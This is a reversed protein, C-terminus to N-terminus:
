YFSAPEIMILINISLHKAMDYHLCTITLARLGVSHFQLSLKRRSTKFSILKLNTTKSEDLLCFLGLHFCEDNDSRM